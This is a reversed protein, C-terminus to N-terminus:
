LPPLCIIRKPTHITKNSKHKLLTNARPTPGALVIAKPRQSFAVAHIKKHEPSLTEENESLLLGMDPLWLPAGAGSYDPMCFLSPINDQDPLEIHGDAQMSMSHGIGNVTGEVTYEKDMGPSCFLPGSLYGPIHKMEKGVDHLVFGGTGLNVLVTNDHSGASGLFGAAQDAVSSTLTGGSDLPISWGFTPVIEPLLLQPIDFFSLLRESWRSKGPDAMLTRAAMSLDTQHYKGKTMKWIFFTELTGFLINGRAAAKRLQNDTSLLYALKPGAYHPSLFLGTFSELGPFAGRREECWEYARRDQWSILATVPKGTIKDWRISCYNTSGSRGYFKSHRNQFDFIDNDASV